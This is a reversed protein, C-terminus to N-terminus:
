LINEKLTISFAEYVGRATIRPLQVNGMRVRFKIDNPELGATPIKQKELISCNLGITVTEAVQSIYSVLYIKNSNTFKIADGVSLNGGRTNWAPIVIENDRVGLTIAGEARLSATSVDWAGTKPNVHTPLQVYFNTFGGTLYALMPFFSNGEDVTLEPYSIDITFYGGAYEVAVTGGNNLDHLLGTKVPQLMQAVFGPGAPTTTPDPLRLLSSDYAM